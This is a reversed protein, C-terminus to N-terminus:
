HAKRQLEKEYAEIIANELWDRTTKNIPHAIDKPTGGRKRRLSPMAVFIGKAGQIIKISRIVFCKDFVVNVFAKLKVDNFLSIQIDTIEM